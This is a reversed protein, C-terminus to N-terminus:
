KNGSYRRDILWKVADMRKVFLRVEVEKQKKRISREVFPRALALVFSSSLVIALCGCTNPRQNMAEEMRAFTYPTPIMPKATFDYLIYIPQDDAPHDLLANIWIDIEQRRNERIEYVTITRSALYYRTVNKGLFEIGEPTYESM